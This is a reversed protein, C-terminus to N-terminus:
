DPTPVFLRVLQRDALYRLIAKLSNRPAERDTSVIVESDTPEEYPDSLGTVHAVEGRRARAYLGKPDRQMCVALPCRVYVEVFRGIEKRAEARAGAYPSIAAVIAVGGARTVCGAVFAIRRVNENRDERSFGLDKALKRRVEDGDLVVVPLGLRILDAELLHALTTKGSGPLGTLWITFGPDAPVQDVEPLSTDGCVTVEGLTLPGDM